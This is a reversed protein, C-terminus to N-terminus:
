KALHKFKYTENNTLRDINLNEHISHFIKSFENWNAKCEKKMMTKYVNERGRERKETKMIKRWKGVKANTIKYIINLSIVNNKNTRDAASYILTQPQSLSFFFFFFYYSKGYPNGHSRLPIICGFWKVGYTHKAYVVFCFNGNSLMVRKLLEILQTSLLGVFGLRERERLELVGNLIGYKM